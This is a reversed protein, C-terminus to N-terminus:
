CVQLSVKVEFPHIIYDCRESEFKLNCCLQPDTADSIGPLNQAEELLNCYLGVNSIEVTKDVQGGRSKGM